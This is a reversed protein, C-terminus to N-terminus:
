GAPADKMAESEATPLGIHVLQWHTLGHREFTFTTTGHTEDTVTLRARELSFFATKPSPPKGDYRTPEFRNADKAVGYTLGLIAKPTLYTNVDIVPKPPAKPNPNTLDNFLNGVSDAVSKFANGTAGVPDNLASPAPASLGKDGADLQAKLSVRVTNFDILKALADIDQSECSSRVDYFSIIPAAYFLGAAGAVILVLILSLVRSM